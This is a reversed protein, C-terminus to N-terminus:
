SKLIGRFLRKAFRFPASFISHHVRRSPPSIAAEEPPITAEVRPRPARVGERVGAIGPPNPAPIARAVRTPAHGRPMPSPKGKAPPPVVVARPQETPRQLGALRQLETPPRPPLVRVPALSQASGPKSWMWLAIGGGALVLCAAGVMAIRRVPWGPGASPRAPASSLEVVAPDCVVRGEYWFLLRAM